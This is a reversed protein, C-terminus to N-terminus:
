GSFAEDDFGAVYACTDDCCIDLFLRFLCAGISTTSAPERRDVPGERAILLGYQGADLSKDATERRSVSRSM